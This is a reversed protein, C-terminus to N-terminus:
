RSRGWSTRHDLTFRTPGTEKAMTMAERLMMAAKTELMTIRAIPLGAGISLDAALRYVLWESWFREADVTANRDTVDARLRHIQFRIVGANETTSPVPWIRLQILTPSRHAYYVSPSGSSSKSQIQHWDERDVPSVYLEAQAQDVNTYGPAIYMGPGLVDTANAPLSYQFVGTQLTVNYFDVTKAFFGKAQTGQMIIGLLDLGRLMQDETPTQGDGVLASQRYAVTIIQGVNFEKVTTSAVTL